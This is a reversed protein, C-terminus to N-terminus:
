RVSRAQNADAEIFANAIQELNDAKGDITTDLDNFIQKFSNGLSCGSVLGGINSQGPYAVATAGSMDIARFGAAIVQAEHIDSTLNGSM